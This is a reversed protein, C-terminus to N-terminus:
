RKILKYPTVLIYPIAPRLDMRYQPPKVTLYEKYKSKDGKGNWNQYCSVVFSTGKAGQMKKKMAAIVDSQRMTQGPFRIVIKSMDNESSGGHVGCAFYDYTESASAAVRELSTLAAQYGTVVTIYSVKEREVKGIYEKRTGSFKDTGFYVGGKKKVCEFVEDSIGNLSSVIRGILNKAEDLKNQYIALGFTRAEGVFVMFAALGLNDGAILASNKSAEPM